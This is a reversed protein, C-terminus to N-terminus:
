TNYYTKKEEEGKYKLKLSTSGVTMEISEIKGDEIDQILQTYAVELEDNEQNNQIIILTLVLALALIIPIIALLMKKWKNDKPKKQNNDSM